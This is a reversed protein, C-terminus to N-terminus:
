LQSGAVTLAVSSREVYAPSHSVCYDNPWNSPLKVAIFGIVVGINQTTCKLKHMLDRAFVWFWMEM